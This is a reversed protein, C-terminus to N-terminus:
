DNTPGNLPVEGLGDRDRWAVSYDPTEHPPLPPGQHPWMNSRRLHATIRQALGDVESNSMKANLRRHRGSDDLTLAMLIVFHVEEETARTLDVM